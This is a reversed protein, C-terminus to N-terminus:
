LTGPEPPAKTRIRYLEAVPEVAVLGDGALGTHATELIAAVIAPAREAGAYLEIRVHGVTWEGRYFNAYEGFGSVRLITLGPVGLEQLRHEVRELLRRRIIASVKVYM